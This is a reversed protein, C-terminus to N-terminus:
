SVTMASMPIEHPGQGQEYTHECRWVMKRDPTVAIYANAYPPYYIECEQPMANATDAQQFEAWRQATVLAEVVSGEEVRLGPGYEASLADLEQAAEMAGQWDWVALASNVAALAQEEMREQESV